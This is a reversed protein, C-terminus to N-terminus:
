SLGSHFSLPLSGGWRHERMGSGTVAASCNEPQTDQKVQNQRQTEEASVFTLLSNECHAIATEVRAIEEEIEHVREELQKRKIPNLRKGKSEERASSREVSENGNASVRGAQSGNGSSGRTPVNM